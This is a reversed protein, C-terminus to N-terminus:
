VLLIAKIKQLIKECGEKDNRLYEIVNYQGQFQKDGLVESTFWAGKKTIIGFDTATDVIEAVEDIGYGYRLFSKFTRGPPFNLATTDVEWKITQGVREKKEGSGVEWKEVKKCHMKIDAAYQVKFGGTESTPAGYGGVNAVIHLIMIVVNGNIPVINQLRKCFDSLMLKTPDRTLNGVDDLMQKGAILQSISDMVIISRPDNHVINHVIELHNETTLIKGKKSRIVTIKSPDLGKIGEIDRQKIRCEIDDYYVNRGAEQAKRLIHLASTTKGLKPPGSMIMVCGDPIGGVVLDFNPSISLIPKPNDILDQGTVISESYKKIIEEVSM